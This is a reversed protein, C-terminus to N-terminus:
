SKRIKWLLVAAEQAATKSKQRRTSRGPYIAEALAKTRAAFRADPQDPGAIRFGHINLRARDTRLSNRASIALLHNPHHSNAM